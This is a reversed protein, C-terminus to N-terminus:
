LPRLLRAPLLGRPIMFVMSWALPLLLLMAPGRSFTLGLGPTMAPVM